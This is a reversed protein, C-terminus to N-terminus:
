RLGTREKEGTAMSVKTNKPRLGHLEHTLKTLSKLMDSPFYSGGVEQKLSETATWCPLEADTSPVMSWEAAVSM